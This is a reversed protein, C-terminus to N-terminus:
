PEIDYTKILCEILYYQLLRQAASMGTRACWMIQLIANWFNGCNILYATYLKVCSLCKGLWQIWAWMQLRMSGHRRHMIKWTNSHVTTDSPEVTNELRDALQGFHVRTTCEGVIIRPSLVKLYNHRSNRIVPNHPHSKNRCAYAQNRRGQDCRYRTYNHSSRKKRTFGRM